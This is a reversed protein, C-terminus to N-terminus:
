ALEKIKKNLAKIDCGLFHLFVIFSKLADSENAINHKTGFEKVKNYINRDRENTLDLLLKIEKIQDMDTEESDFNEGAITLVRARNYTNYWIITQEALLLLLL